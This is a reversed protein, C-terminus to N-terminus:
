GLQLRTPKNSDSSGPLPSLCSKGPFFSHKKGRHSSLDWHLEAGTSGPMTLRHLTNEACLCLASLTPTLQGGRHMLQSCPGSWSPIVSSSGQQLYLCSIRRSLVSAPLLSGRVSLGPAASAGRSGPDLRVGLWPGYSKGAAGCLLVITPFFFFCNLLLPSETRCAPQPEKGPWSSPRAACPGM